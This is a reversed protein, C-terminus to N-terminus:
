LSLQVPQAPEAAQVPVVLPSANRSDLPEFVVSTTGDRFPKRLQLQLRGDPLEHLREQSLPPRTLYRYM